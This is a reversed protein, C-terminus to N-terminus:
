QAIAAPLPMVGTSDITAVCAPAPAPSGRDRQEVGVAGAAGHHEELLELVELVAVRVPELQDVHEGALRLVGLQEGAPEVGVPQGPDGLRQTGASM